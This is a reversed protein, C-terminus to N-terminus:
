IYCDKFTRATLRSLRDKVAAEQWPSETLFRNLSSQDKDPAFAALRSVTSHQSVALATAFLSFNNFQPKSFCSSFSNLIQNWEKPMPLLEATM